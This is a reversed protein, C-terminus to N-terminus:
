RYPNRQKNAMNRAYTMKADIQRKTYGNDFLVKRIKRLGAADGKIYMDVAIEGAKKLSIGKSVPYAGFGTVLYQATGNLFGEDIMKQVNFPMSSQLLEIGRPVATAWGKKGKWAVLNGKDYLAQSPYISDPGPSGSVMQVFLAQIIPNSKAFLQQYPHTFYRGVEFFKKGSHIYLRRGKADRGPNISYGGIKFKVDPLQISAWNQKPDDNEFTSHAKDLSWHLKGMRDQYMGTFAYNTIQTSFFQNRIYRYFNDRALKGTITNKFWPTYEAFGRATKGAEKAASVSWDVYGGARRWNKLVKPDNVDFIRIGSRNIMSDWNQGGFMDNALAGVERNISKMQEATAVLGKDLFGEQLVRSRM